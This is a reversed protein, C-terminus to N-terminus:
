FSYILVQVNLFFLFLFLLLLLLGNSVNARYRFNDWPIYAKVTGCAKWNAKLGPSEDANLGFRNDTTKGLFFLYCLRQEFLELKEYKELATRPDNNGATRAM